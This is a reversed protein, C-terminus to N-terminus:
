RGRRCASICAGRVIALRCLRRWDSRPHTRCQGRISRHVDTRCRTKSGRGQLSLPQPHPPNVWRGSNLAPEGVLKPHSAEGRVGPGEGELPSPLFLRVRFRWAYNELGQADAVCRYACTGPYVPGEHEAHPASAALEIEKRSCTCPYVLEQRQLEALMSEHRPLHQSQIEIDGDWDLGLWRLDTQLEEIAHPKNRWVDIDEIRLRVTGGQARASLWAILYTRANGVHQSGTPSPALRGRVGRSGPPSPNPTLPFAKGSTM